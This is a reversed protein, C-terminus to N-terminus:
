SDAPSWLVPKDTGDYIAAEAELSGKGVLTVKINPHDKAFDALVTEVWEKKETSYEFTIEVPETAVPKTPDSGPKVAPKDGAKGRMAIWVIVAVAALFGIVIALKPKM